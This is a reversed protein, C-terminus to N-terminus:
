CTPEGRDRSQEGAHTAAPRRSCPRDASADRGAPEALAAAPAGSNSHVSSVCCSAPATPHHGDRIVEEASAALTPTLHRALPLLTRVSIRPLDSARPSAVSSPTGLDTASRRISRRRGDGLEVVVFAPGRASHLPVLSLRQGSLAHHPDTVMVHSVVGDVIVAAQRTRNWSVARNSTVLLSGREYRRSVLQFFLHAAGPEFPLYGLEDVILLKPKAFHTLREELRGEAHAKALQAVLTPAPVFLVTYGATIAERGIAVALHTKGVGPSGADYQRTDPM